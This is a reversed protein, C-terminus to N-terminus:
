KLSAKFFEVIGTMIIAVTASIGSMKLETKHHKETLAKEVDNIRHILEEKDKKSLDRIEKFNNRFEQAHGSQRENMDSIMEMIITMPDNNKM